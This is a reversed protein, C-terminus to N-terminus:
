ISRVLNFHCLELCWAVPPSDRSLHWINSIRFEVANPTNQGHDPNDGSSPTDSRAAPDLSIEYVNQYGKGSVVHGVGILSFVTVSVVQGMLVSGLM